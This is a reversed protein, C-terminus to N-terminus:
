DWDGSNTGYKAVETLGVRQWQKDVVILGVICETTLHKNRNNPVSM